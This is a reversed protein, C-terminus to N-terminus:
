EKKLANYKNESVMHRYRIRSHFHVAAADHVEQLSGAFDTYLHDADGRKKMAKDAGCGPCCIRNDSKGCKM